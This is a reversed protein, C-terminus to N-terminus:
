LSAWAKRAETCSPCTGCPHPGAGYCSWADSPKLGMRRAERVVESKTMSILPALVSVGLAATMADFFGPRCDPYNAHDSHTAGLVVSTGGMEPAHNAGVALLVANRGPVVRAGQASGMDGLDLGFVHVARLPVEREGCYAFAKWGEAQQAPHGYDVFVCGRLEGAERALEACVLSDIGGSLMVIQGM